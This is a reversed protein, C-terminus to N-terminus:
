RPYYMEGKLAADRAALLDQPHCPLCLYEQAGAQKVLPYAHSSAMAAQFLVPINALSLIVKLRAYVQWGDSEPMM